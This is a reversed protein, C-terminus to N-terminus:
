DVASRTTRPRSEATTRADQLAAVIGYVLPIQNYRPDEAIHLEHALFRRQFPRELPQGSEPLFVSLTHRYGNYELYERILENIILNENSLKPKVGGEDLAQFIEARLRAKIPGLSGRAELTEKLADKLDGLSLTEDM